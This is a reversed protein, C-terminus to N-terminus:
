GSVTRDDGLCNQTYQLVTHQYLNYLYVNIKRDKHKIGRSDCQSAPIQLYFTSFIYNVAAKIKMLPLLSFPKQVNWSLKKLKQLTDDTQLTSKHLCVSVLAKMKYSILSFNVFRCFYIMYKCCFCLMLCCNCQALVSCNMTIAPSHDQLREYNRTSCRM